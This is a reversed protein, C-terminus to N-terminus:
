KGAGNQGALDVLKGMISKNNNRMEKLGDAQLEYLRQIHENIDIIDQKLESNKYEMENHSVYGNGERVHIKQNDIHDLVKNCTRRLLLVILGTTVVGAGGAAILMDGSQGLVCIDM